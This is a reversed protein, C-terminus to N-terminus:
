FPPNDQGMPLTPQSGIDSPGFGGNIATPASPSQPVSAQAPQTNPAAAVYGRIGYAGVENYWRGEYERADIGFAVVVTKGVMADFMAIRGTQGDRVSFVIHRLYQGPVEFLFEAIKWPNGTSKSVGERESLKKVLIGTIEM